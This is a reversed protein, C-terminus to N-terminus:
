DVCQNSSPLDDERKRKLCPHKCENYRVGADSNHITKKRSWLELSLFDTELEERYRRWISSKQRGEQSRVMVSGSVDRIVKDTAVTPSRSCM